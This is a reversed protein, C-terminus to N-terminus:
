AAGAGSVPIKMAVGMKILTLANASSFSLYHGGSRGAFQFGFVALALRTFLFPAGPVPPCRSAWAGLRTRCDGEGRSSQM